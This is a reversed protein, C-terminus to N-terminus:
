HLLQQTNKSKNNSKIWEPSDIYSCSRIFSVEHCQYCMLQVSDFIFDSGKMSAELNEQYRSRLSKFLKNAVENADSYPTFKINGSNTHMVREEESDKSYIFNIAITLHIKCSDFNQLNIIINKLYCEIKSIYEDLM